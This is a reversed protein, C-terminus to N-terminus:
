PEIKHKQMRYILASRTIQLYNATQSQNGNNKRLAERIIEREVNELNIPENPLDFWLNETTSFPNKINEPIDAVTLEDGDSL